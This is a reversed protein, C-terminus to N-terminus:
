ASDLLCKWFHRDCHPAVLHADIAVVRKCDGTDRPQELFQHRQELRTLREIVGRQLPNECHQPGVLAGSFYKAVINQLTGLATLILGFVPPCFRYM